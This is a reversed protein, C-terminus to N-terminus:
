NIMIPALGVCKMAGDFLETSNWTVAEVDSNRKLDAGFFHANTENFCHQSFVIIQLKYVFVRGDDFQM